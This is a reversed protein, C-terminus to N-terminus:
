VDWNEHDDWGTLPKAASREIYVNKNKKSNGQEEGKKEGKEEGKGSWSGDSDGYNVVTIVTGNKAGKSARKTVLQGGKELRKISWRVQKHTLGTERSLQEVSTLFEGTGLCIGKYVTPQINARMLCHLFLACDSVYDYSPANQFNRPLM